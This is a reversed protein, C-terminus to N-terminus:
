IFFNNKHLFFYTTTPVTINNPFVVRYKSFKSNFFFVEIGWFDVKSIKIFKYMFTGPM